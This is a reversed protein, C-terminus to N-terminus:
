NVQSYDFTHRQQMERLEKDTMRVYQSTGWVLHKQGNEAIRVHLPEVCSMYWRGSLKYISWTRLFVGWPLFLLNDSNTMTCTETDLTYGSQLFAPAGIADSYFYRIVSANTEIYYSSPSAGYLNDYYGTPVARGNEQIENTQMWKWGYGIAEKMFTEQMEVPICPTDYRYPVGNADFQFMPLDEPEIIVPVTDEAEDDQLCSTALFPLAIFLITILRKM